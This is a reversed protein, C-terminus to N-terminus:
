YQDCAGISDNDRGLRTVNHNQSVKPKVAKAACAVGVGPDVANVEDASSSQMNVIAKDKPEVVISDVYSSGSPLYSDFVCDGIIFALTPQSSLAGSNFPVQAIQAM